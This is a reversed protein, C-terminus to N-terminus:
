TTSFASIGAAFGASFAGGHGANACEPLSFPEIQRSLADCRFSEADREIQAMFDTLCLSDPSGHLRLMLRSPRPLASQGPQPSQCEYFLANQCQEVVPGQAPHISSIWRADAILVDLRPGLCQSLAQLENLSGAPVIRYYGLRNLMREIMLTQQHRSDAIVIRLEKYAM